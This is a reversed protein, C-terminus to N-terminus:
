HIREGEFEFDVLGHDDRSDIKFEFPNNTISIYWLEGKWNTMWIPTSLYDLVFQRTEKLKNRDLEFTYKVRRTNTTRRYTYTGGTITRQVTIKDLSGETDGLLPKKFSLTRGPVQFIVGNSSKTIFAAPIPILESTVTTPRYFVPSFIITDLVSRSYIVQKVLLQSLNLNSNSVRGRVRGTTADDTLTLTSAVAALHVPLSNENIVFLNQASQTIVKIVNALGTFIISNSTVRPRVVNGVGVQTFGLVNSIFDFHNYQLAVSQSLSYNTNAGKVNETTASDSITISNSVTRIQNCEAVIFPAFTDTVTRQYVKAVSALQTLNLTQNVRRNPNLCVVDQTLSLVNSASDPDTAKYALVIQGLQGSGLQGKLM